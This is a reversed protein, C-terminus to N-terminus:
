PAAPNRRSLAALLEDAQRVRPDLLGAGIAMADRGRQLEVRASDSDGRALLVRAGLIRAEGVYASRVSTLSDRTAARRADSAFHLAAANDGLALASQAALVLAARSM